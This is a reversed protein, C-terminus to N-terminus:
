HDAERLARDVMDSIIQAVVIKPSTQESEHPTLVPAADSVPAAAPSSFIAPLSVPPTQSSSLPSAPAPQASSPPSALSVHVVTSDTTVVISAPSPSPSLTPVASVTSVSTAAPDRVLSVPTLPGRRVPPPPM